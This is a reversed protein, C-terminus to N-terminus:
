STQMIHYTSFMRITITMDLVPFVTDVQLSAVTNFVFINLNYNINPVNTFYRVVVSDTLSINHATVVAIKECYDVLFTKLSTKVFMDLIMSLFPNNKTNENVKCWQVNELRIKEEYKDSGVLKEIILSTFFDHGLIRTKNVSVNITFFNKNYTKVYCFLFKVTKESSSCKLSRFRYIIASELEFTILILLFLKKM